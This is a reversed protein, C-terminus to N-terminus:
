SVCQFCLRRKADLASLKSQIDSFLSQFDSVFLLSASTLKHVQVSLFCFLEENLASIRNKVLFCALIRRGQTVFTWLDDGAKLNKLLSVMKLLGATMFCTPECVVFAVFLLIAPVCPPRPWIPTQLGAPRYRSLLFVVIVCCVWREDRGATFCSFSFCLPCVTLFCCLKIHTGESLRFPTEDTPPPATFQQNKWVNAGHHTNVSSLKESSM